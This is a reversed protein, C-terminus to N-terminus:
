LADAQSAIRSRLYGVVLRLARGRHSIANKEAGSMEAFTQAHGEPVFLSDYGFGFAGREEDEIHGECTGEFYVIQRAEALAIVTRFRATRRTVNVLQELLLARNDADTANEGAFRASHVGPAGDLADVVLGSDDALAPLGSHLHLTWAKKRANEWLTPRDEVVEPADAIEALSLLQVPLEGLLSSLERVKGQNRTALVIKM